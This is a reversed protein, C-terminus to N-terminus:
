QYVISQCRKQAPLKGSYCVYIDLKGDGNVDAMTVGTKWPGYRGAVDATETIDEFKMNGKNLYLKNDVANGSFYLDQLGDGNVDGVAVGGGNYFYEYMLVNMNLSEKVENNFDINTQDPPLLKFVPDDHTADSDENGSCSSVCLSLLLIAIAAIFSSNIFRLM